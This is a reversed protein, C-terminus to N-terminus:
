KGQLPGTLTFVGERLGEEEAEGKADEFVEGREVERLVVPPGLESSRRLVFFLTAPLYWPQAPLAVTLMLLGRALIGLAVEELGVGELFAEELCPAEEEEVEAWCERGGDGGGELSISMEAMVSAESYALM